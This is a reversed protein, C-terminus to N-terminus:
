AARRMTGADVESADRAQVDAISRVAATRVGRTMMVAITAILVVTVNVTWTGATPPQFLQWAWLGVWTWAIAKDTEDFHGRHLVDAALLTAGAVQLLLDYDMHYPMVLPVCAIAVALWRRATSVRDDGRALRVWQLSVVLMTVVAAVSAAWLLRVVPWTAGGTDHGQLLVRWFAMLTTQRQWGYGRQQQLAAVAQPMEIFFAATSGPLSFEGIAMLVSGTFVAGLLARYGAVVSVALVVGMGLQPKFFMLGAVLGCAWALRKRAPSTFRRVDAAKLALVLAASLIFLSVFTNQQHTIAQIFPFATVMGLPVLGRASWGADRPILSMLMAGAALTLVANFGIWVVLAAPYGPLKALPVFALAYFPPNLWPSLGPGHPEDPYTVAWTQRVLRSVAYPNFLEDARGTEILVGAAYSPMLDVGFSGRGLKKDAATFNNAIIATVLFLAAGLGIKWLRKRFPRVAAIAPATPTSPLEM